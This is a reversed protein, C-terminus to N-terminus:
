DDGSAPLGVTDMAKFYDDIEKPKFYDKAAQEVTKPPTDHMARVMAEDPPPESAPIRSRVARWASSLRSSPRLHLGNYGARSRKYRRECNPNEGQRAMWVLDFLRRPRKM